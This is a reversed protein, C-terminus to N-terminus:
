VTQTHTKAALPLLKLDMEMSGNFAPRQNTLFFFFVYRNCELVEDAAGM